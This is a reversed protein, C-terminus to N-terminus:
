HICIYTNYIYLLKYTHKNFIYLFIVENTYRSRQKV